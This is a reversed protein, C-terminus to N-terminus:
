AARASRGMDTREMSRDQSSIYREMDDQGHVANRKWHIGCETISSRTRLVATRSFSHKGCRKTAGDSIRQLLSIAEHGDEKTLEYSVWEPTQTLVNYSSTYGQYDIIYDTSELAPLELRSTDINQSFSCGACIIGAAFISLFTNKM